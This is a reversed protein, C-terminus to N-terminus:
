SWFLSTKSQLPEVTATRGNTGDIARADKDATRFSFYPGVIAVELKGETKVLVVFRDRPFSTRSNAM